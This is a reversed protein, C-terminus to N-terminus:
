ADDVLTLSRAYVTFVFANLTNERFCFRAVKAGGTGIRTLRGLQQRVHQPDQEFSLFLLSDVVRQLNFGYELSSGALFVTSPTGLFGNVRALVGESRGSGIRLVRHLSSDGIPELSSSLRHLTLGVLRSTLAEAGCDWLKKARRHGQNTRVLHLKVGPVRARILEAVAELSREPCRLLTSVGHQLASIADVASVCLGDAQERLKAHLRKVVLLHDDAAMCLHPSLRNEGFSSGHEMPTALPSATALQLAWLVLLNKSTVLLSLARRFDQVPGCCALWLDVVDDGFGSPTGLTMWRVHAVAQTSQLASWRQLDDGCLAALRLRCVALLSVLHFVSSANVFGALGRCGPPSILQLVELWYKEEASPNSYPVSVPEAVVQSIALLRRVREDLTLTYSHWSGHKTILSTPTATLLVTVVPPDLSSVDKVLGPYAHAEDLILVDFQAQELYARLGRIDKSLVRVLRRGSGPRQAELWRLSGAPPAGLRARKAGQSAGDGTVAVAVDFDQGEVFYKVNGRADIGAFNTGSGLRRQSEFSSALLHGQQPAMMGPCIFGIKHTPYVHLLRRILEVAVGTKGTGPPFCVLHGSAGRSAEAAVSIIEAASSQHPFPGGAAVRAKVAPDEM